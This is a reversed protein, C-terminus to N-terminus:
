DTIRQGETRDIDRLEGPDGVPHLYVDERNALLIGKGGRDGSLSKLQPFYAPCFGCPNGPEGCWSISGLGMRSAMWSRLFAEITERKLEPQDAVFFVCPRIETEGLGLKLSSSIGAGPDPNIVCYVNLNACFAEIERYQTVVTLELTPYRDTLEKLRCLTHQYLPVGKYEALLKNSGYRRGFGAALLILKCPEM